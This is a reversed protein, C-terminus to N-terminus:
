RAEPVVSVRELDGRERFFLERGDDRRAFRIVIVVGLGEVGGCDGSCSTSQEFRQRSEPVQSSSWGAGPAQQSLADWGQKARDM